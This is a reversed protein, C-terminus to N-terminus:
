KITVWEGTLESIANVGTDKKLQIKGNKLQKFVKEYNKESFKSFQANEMELSVGGNKANYNFATGGVFKEDVYNDLMEEVVVGVENKASTIVTSSLYSQDVGAGIVKGKNKEAAKIVSTCINGGCTFIVQTGAKYWDAALNRVDDSPESTGTYIYSLEVKQELEAAAAAAGQVFGYGYRKIAPIEQGGMFGLKNYGDKVAAYGALYGAEEEAFVIGITNAATAYTQAADHPVGDILLFNVDPYASQAAYVATEFASGTMIVLKAKNNVAKEVAMMYAEEKTAPAKEEKKDKTDKADADGANGEKEPDAVEKATYCRATLANEAAFAEVQGWTVDTFSGEDMDESDVIMALEADKNEPKDNSSGSNGCSVMCLTLAMIALVSIIRKM